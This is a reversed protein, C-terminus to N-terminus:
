LFYIKHTYTHTHTHTTSHFLKNKKILKQKKIKGKRLLNGLQIKKRSMSVYLEGRENIIMMKRNRISIM